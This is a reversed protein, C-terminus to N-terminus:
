ARVSARTPQAPIPATGLRKEVAGGLWRGLATYASFQAHDFSYTQLVDPDDTFARGLAEKLGAIDAISM